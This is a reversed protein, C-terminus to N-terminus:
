PDIVLAALAENRDLEAYAPAVEPARDSFCLLPNRLVHLERRTVAHDPGSLEERELDMVTECLMAGLEKHLADLGQKGAQLVHFMRAALEQAGYVQEFGQRAKKRKKTDVKM